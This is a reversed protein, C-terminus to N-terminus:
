KREYGQGGPLVRCGFQNCDLLAIEAPRSFNRVIEPHGHSTRRNRFQKCNLAELGYDHAAAWVEVVIMSTSSQGQALMYEDFLRHSQGGCLGRM